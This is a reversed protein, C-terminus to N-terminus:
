LGPILPQSNETSIIGAVQHLWGVSISTDFNITVTKRIRVPQTKKLISYLKKGANAAMPQVRNKTYLGIISSRFFWISGSIGIIAVKRNAKIQEKKM